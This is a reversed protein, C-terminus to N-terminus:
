VPALAPCVEKLQTARDLPLEPQRMRLPPQASPRREVRPRAIPQLQTRPKRTIEIPVAPRVEKMQTARVVGIEPQRLRIASEASARGELRPRPIAQLGARPHGTIEIPVAPCADKMQTARVVGIEPQRLRIASEASARGELRPRPIAQLGAGTGVRREESRAPCVEKMQTARVVGIEPQRLRIASEASARGELRPRAISHLGPGPKRAVEIPVSPRVQKM